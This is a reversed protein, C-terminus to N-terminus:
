SRDCPNLKNSIYSLLATLKEVHVFTFFDEYNDSLDRLDQLDEFLSHVVPMSRCKDNYWKYDAWENPPIVAVYDEDLELIDPMRLKLFDSVQQLYLCIENKQIIMYSEKHSWVDTVIPM